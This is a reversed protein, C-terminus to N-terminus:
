KELFGPAQPEKLALDHAAVQAKLIAQEAEMAAIRAVLGTVIAALAELSGVAASM